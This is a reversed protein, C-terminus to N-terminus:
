ERVGTINLLQAKTFTLCDSLDVDEWVGYDNCHRLAAGRNVLTQNERDVTGYVCPLFQSEEAFVRM